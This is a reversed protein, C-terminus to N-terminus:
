AHAESVEVPQITYLQSGFDGLLRTKENYYTGSFQQILKIGSMMAQGSMQYSEVANDLQKKKSIQHMLYGYPNIKIPLAHAVLHGFTSLPITQQISQISYTTKPNLNKPHIVDLDPSSHYRTQFFGFVHQDNLTVQWMKHDHDKTPIRNFEGYQFVDRYAKYLEIQKKIAQKDAPSIYKLNLEYGLVGFSAVNFRTSLPTQRITQAHPALSVHCSITSPPYLYSLGEQINLREIPDTNDSAWIQPSFMLMGLDFRNGGSSCTEILLNPYKETIQTLVDYLGLIYAHFFMGQDALSSSYMDTIHRNMDWKIYDIPTTDLIYSLQEVIYTRVDSQCLDLVLQNRGLNPNRHEISVAWEPHKKYLKSKPNVMEPEVWLGFQMGLDHIKKSLKSLGGPLKRTNVYYDGLSQTDDNRKGFWGDDLVFLEVGLASAEKALKLLKRANFDFFFAEWSNLVIPRVSKQFPKPVVHDKVFDHFHHSLDNFGQDSYTLVAEPTEFSEDKKLPWEFAHPNIGTMVRMLGHNSIQVAEYHNGSYILNLGICEGYEEHTGKKALLIGPQHRNSSAGTTSDVIYTGYNLPRIHKHAEKIWGGDFTILDYDSEAVDMMMSMMKRIIIPQEEHNILIARRTFTDAKEFVTYILKLEINFKAEKLTLVLSQIKGKGKAIPIEKSPIVSEKIEYSDYIFDCVYTQDPLKIELPTLRFDGQGIESYELTMLDLASEEGDRKYLISSGVGATPKLHMSEYRHDVLKKGLYMHELKKTPLISMLYGLSNTELYFYPLRALIM